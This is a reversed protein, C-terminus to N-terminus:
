NYNITLKPQDIYNYFSGSGINLQFSVTTIDDTGIKNDELSSKSIGYKMAGAQGPELTRSCTSDDVAMTDEGFAVRVETDKAITNNDIDCISAHFAIESIEGIGFAEQEQADAMQDISIAMVGRGGSRINSTGCDASRGLQRMGVIGTGIRTDNWGMRNEYIGRETLGTSM